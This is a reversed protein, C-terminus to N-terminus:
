VDHIGILGDQVARAFLAAKSPASRDIESYRRRIRQLHTRVTSPAIHLKRSVSEKNDTLLWEVLVRREQATLEPRGFQRAAEMAATALPGHSETGLQAATIADLLHEPSETKVIYNAAGVDLCNLIIETSAIRSYAVVRHQLKCLQELGAYDPRQEGHEPDFIIVESGASHRQHEKLFQPLSRYAHVAGTLISAEAVWSRVGTHVIPQDDIVVLPVIRSM